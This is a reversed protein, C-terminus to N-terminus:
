ENDARCRKNLFSMLLINPNNEKGKPPGMIVVLYRGVIPDGECM